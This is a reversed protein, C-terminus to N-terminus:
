AGVLNFEVVVEDEVALMGGLVSYPKAGFDSQRLVFAGSAAVRDPLGEVRLPVWIARKQGHLEVEVKAAFRPAEGHIELSRIRVLPFREAQLNDEGLMHERTGDIAGPPLASAFASGLTSRYAPNDIELQDLRFELDFRAASTGGPPLHFFGAFQPASLVHNHGLRAARGARFAYIRVTSADPSLTFVKGGATGLDAYIAKLDTREPSETASAAGMGDGSRTSTCSLLAAIAAIGFLASAAKGIAATRGQRDVNRSV